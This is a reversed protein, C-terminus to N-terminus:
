KPAQLVITAGGASLAIRGDMLSIISPRSGLLIQRTDSLTANRTDIGHISFILLGDASRGESITEISIARGEAPQPPVMLDLGGLADTGRLTGDGAYVVLGQPTSIVMESDPAATSTFARVARPDDIRGQAGELPTPHLRGTSVTALWLATTPALMLLRDGFVWADSVPMLEATALTWNTKATALDLCVVAADLCAILSGTDTVRVLHPHGGLDGVRQMTRGTRADFTQILPTLDTVIGGPGVVEEDGAVVLAGNGLDADYVRGVPTRASWLLQGTETDFCAVKGSRQIVALTREDMHVLMDTGKVEENDPTPFRDERVGPVPNLGRNDDHVAFVKALPPSRWQLAGDTTSVRVLTPASRNNLLLFASGDVTRLHEVDGGENPTAWVQRLLPAPQSAPDRADHGPAQEPSWISVEKEGELVLSSVVGPRVERMRPPLITWQSLSQVSEARPPGIRPWRVVSAVRGSLEVALAEADIPGAGTRLPADPFRQRVSRLLELAAAVQGRSQLETVLEGSLRGVSDQDPSRVRAAAKLGSEFAATADHPRDTARYMQGLRLWVEPAVSALPFRAVLSELASADAPEGLAKFENGAALEQPAYVDPGASAILTEIRQTAELEGRVSVQLGSWMAAALAPDDLIRQYIRVADSPHKLLDELRGSALIHSLQQPPTRATRGLREALFQLLQNDTIRPAQALRAQLAGGGEPPAAPAPELSAALMTNLSQFLRERAANMALSDPDNKLAALSADVAGLIRDPRGARYALEAFTTAPTPDAPDAKMRSVLLSEAVDWLLYSHLRADDAVILQSQLALLHGPEDLAIFTPEVDPQQPNVIAFGTTLPVLIRDGSVVVRGHVGPNPFTPTLRITESEFGALPVLALRDPGVAVLTDGARLLYDPAPSGFRDTPRSALATGTARDLRVINQGDPAILVLSDNDIIPTNLHWPM